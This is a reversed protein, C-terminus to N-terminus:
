LCCSKRDSEGKWDMTLVFHTLSELDYWVIIKRGSEIGSFLTKGVEYVLMLNKSFFIGNQGLSPIFTSHGLPACLESNLSQIELNLASQERMWGELRPRAKDLIVQDQRKESALTRANM